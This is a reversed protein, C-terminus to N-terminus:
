NFVAFLTLLVKQIHEMGNSELGPLNVNGQEKQNNHLTIKWFVSVMLFIKSLNEKYLGDCINIHKWSSRPDRKILKATRQKTNPVHKPNSSPTQQYCLTDAGNRYYTLLFHNCLNYLTIFKWLFISSKTVSVKWIFKWSIKKPFPKQPEPNFEFVCCLFSHQLGQIVLEFLVFWFPGLSFATWLKQTFVRVM